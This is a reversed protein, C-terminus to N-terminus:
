CSKIGTNEADQVLLQQRILEELIMKNQEVDTPDYDPVVEKLAELRENFDEITLVWNGVKALVNGSVPAPKATEKPAPPVAKKEETQAPPAVPQKVPAANQALQVVPAPKTKVSQASNTQSSSTKECGFAFVFLFFGVVVTLKQKNFSM